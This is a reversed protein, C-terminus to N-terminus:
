SLADILRKAERLDTAGFGETFRSYVEALLNHAERTRGQDPCLRALPVAARLEKMSPLGSFLTLLTGIM